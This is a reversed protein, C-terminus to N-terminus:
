AGHAGKRPEARVLLSYGGLLRVTATVPLVARPLRFARAKWSLQPLDFSRTFTRELISYGADAVTAEATEPTFYHLHGATQRREMLKAPRLVSQASLDLPIHLITSDAKERLGRLFGIPDAVHEIVDMLLMLEFREPDAAADQLRFTLRESSYREAIQLAAPAIEYGVMRSAPLRKHLEYLIAGAGCGVECVSAPQWGRLMELVQRAKWPSDAVHWDPNNELYRATTYLSAEMDM